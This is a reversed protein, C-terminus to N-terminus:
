TRTGAGARRLAPRFQELLAVAADRDPECTLKEGEEYPTVRLAATVTDPDWAGARVAALLATLAREEAEGETHAYLAEGAEALLHRDDVVHEVVLGPVGLASVWSTGDWRAAGSFTRETEGAFPGPLATLGLAATVDDANLPAGREDHDTVVLVPAAPSLDLVLSSGGGDDYAVLVPEPAHRPRLGASAFVAVQFAIGATLAAALPAPVLWPAKEHGWNHRGGGVAGALAHSVRGVRPM